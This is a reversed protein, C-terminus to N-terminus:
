ESIRYHDGVIVFLLASANGDFLGRLASRDFDLIAGFRALAYGHSTVTRNRICLAIEDSEDVVVLECRFVPKQIQQLSELFIRAVPDKRRDIRVEIRSRRLPHDISSKVITRHM